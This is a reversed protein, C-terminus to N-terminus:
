LQLIVADLRGQSGECCDPTPPPNSFSPGLGWGRGESTGQNFAGSRVLPIPGRLFDCADVEQALLGTWGGGGKWGESGEGAM